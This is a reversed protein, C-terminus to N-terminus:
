RLSAKILIVTKRETQTVFVDKRCPVGKCYNDASYSFKTEPCTFFLGKAQGLGGVEFDNEAAIIMQPGVGACFSPVSIECILTSGAYDQRLYARQGIIKAIEISELDFGMCQEILRRENGLNPNITEHWATAKWTAWPSDDPLRVLLFALLAILATAFMVAISVSHFPQWHGRKRVNPEFPFLALLWQTIFPERV